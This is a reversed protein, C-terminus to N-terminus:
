AQGLILSCHFPLQLHHPPPVHLYTIYRMPHPHPDANDVAVGYITSKRSWLSAVPLSRTCMYGTLSRNYSFFVQLTYVYRGLHPPGAADHRWGM